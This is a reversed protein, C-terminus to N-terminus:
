RAYGASVLLDIAASQNLTTLARADLCWRPWKDVAILERCAAVEARRAGLEQEATVAVERHAIHWADHIVVPVVQEVALNSRSFKANLWITFTTLDATSEVGPRGFLAFRITAGKLGGVAATLEPAVGGKAVTCIDTLLARLRAAGALGVELKTTAVADCPPSVSPLVSPLPVPALKGVDHSLTGRPPPRREQVPVTSSSPPHIIFVVAAVLAVAGAFAFMVLVPRPMSDVFRVTKPKEVPEDGM